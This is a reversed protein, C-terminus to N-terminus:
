KAIRSQDMFEDFRPLIMKSLIHGIKCKIIRYDQMYAKFKKYCHWNQLLRGPSIYNCLLIITGNYHNGKFRKESDFHLLIITRLELIQKSSDYSNLWPESEM